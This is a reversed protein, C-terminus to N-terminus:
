VGGEIADGGQECVCHDYFLPDWWGEFKTCNNHKINHQADVRCTCLSLWGDEVPDHCEHGDHPHYPPEPPHYCPCVIDTIGTGCRRVECQGGSAEACQVDSCPSIECHQGRFGPECECHGRSEGRGAFSLAGDEGDHLPAECHGHEGCQLGYCPNHLTLLCCGFVIM